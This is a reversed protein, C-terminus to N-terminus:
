TAIEARGAIEALPYVLAISRSRRVALRQALTHPSYGLDDMVQQVRQRTSVAVDPKDNLIRSVTSVSVGALRAIDDITLDAANSKVTENATIRKNPLKRQAM